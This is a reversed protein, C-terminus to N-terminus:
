SELILGVFKIRFRDKGRERKNFRFFFGVKKRGFEILYFRFGDGGMEKFFLEERNERYKFMGIGIVRVYVCRVCLRM